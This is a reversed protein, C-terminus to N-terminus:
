GAPAIAAKNLELILSAVALGLFVVPSGYGLTYDRARLHIAIAVLFFLVLGAAAAMGVVPVAIGVLLGVGGAVKLLGLANLSSEPVRVKRMTGLLWKPRNFDNTAAWINVVATVICVILYATM